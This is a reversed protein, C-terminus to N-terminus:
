ACKGCLGRAVVECCTVKRGALSKLLPARPIEVWPIDETRGCHDCVFHHHREANAEFQAAAAGFSLERILGAEALAHLAKYVTALSARPDGRNITRFIEEATPHKPNTLLCELIAYRQSTCRVGRQRFSEVISARFPSM